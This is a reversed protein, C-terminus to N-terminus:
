ISRKLEIHSLDLVWKEINKKADFYDNEQMYLLTRQANIKKRVENMELFNIHEVRHGIGRARNFGGLKLSKLNKTNEIFTATSCNSPSKIHVEELHPLKKSFDYIPVNRTDLFALKKIPITDNLTIIYQYFKETAQINFFFDFTINLWKFLKQKHLRKLMEFFLKMESSDFKRNYLYTFRITLKEFQTATSEFHSFNEFFFLWECEFHKLKEHVDLFVPLEVEEEFENHFPDYQFYELEPFHEAFVRDGHQCGKICLTKLHPCFCSFHLFCTIPSYFCHLELNEIGHLISSIKGIEDVTVTNNIFKITKLGSYNEPKRFFAVKRKDLSKLYSYTINLTRIYKYFSKNIEVYRPYSAILGLLFFNFSTNPYYSYIYRGCIDELRKCTKGMRLVDLIPLRDFVHNWCDDILNIYPPINEIQENRFLIVERIFSDDNLRKYEKRKQKLRSSLRKGEM